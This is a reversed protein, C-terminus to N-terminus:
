VIFDMSTEENHQCVFVIPLFHNVNFVNTKIKAYSLIGKKISDHKQTSDATLFLNPKFVM